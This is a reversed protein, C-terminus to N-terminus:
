KRQTFPVIVGGARRPRTPKAVPNAPAALRVQADRYALLDDPRYAIKRASLAVFRIKGARRLDALTRASLGLHAAAEPETLTLKGTM